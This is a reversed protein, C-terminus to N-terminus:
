NNDRHDDDALCLVVSFRKGKRRGLRPRRPSVVREQEEGRTESTLEEAPIPSNRVHAVVVKAHTRADVSRRVRRVREHRSVTAHWAKM